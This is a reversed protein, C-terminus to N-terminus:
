NNSQVHPTFMTSTLLSDTDLKIYQKTAEANCTSQRIDEVRKEVESRFHPKLCNSRLLLSCYELPPASVFGHMLSPKAKYDEHLAHGLVQFGFSALIILLAMLACKWGEIGTESMFYYSFWAAVTVGTLFIIYPLLLLVGIENLLLIIYSLYVTLAVAPLIWISSASLLMFAGYVYTHLFVLHNVQLWFSHHYVLHYVIADLLPYPKFSRLSTTKKEKFM